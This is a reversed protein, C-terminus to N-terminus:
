ESLVSPFPLRRGRNFHAALFEAESKDLGAIWAEGREMPSTIKPSFIVLNDSAIVLYDGVHDQSFEALKTAGEPTFNIAVGWESETQRNEMAEASRVDAETLIVSANKPSADGKEFPHDSFFFDVAGQKTALETALLLDEENSM